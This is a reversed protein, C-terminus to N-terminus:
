NGAIAATAGHRHASADGALQWFVTVDIRRSSASPGDSVRVDPANLADGVGPLRKARELLARYGTGEARADFTAYLTAPDAARMQGIAAEVLAIAEARFQADNLHRAARAHLSAIALAGFAFILTAILAELLFAGTTAGKRKARSATRAARRRPSARSM